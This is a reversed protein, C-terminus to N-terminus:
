GRAIHAKELLKFIYGGTEFGMAADLESKMIGKKGAAKIAAFVLGRQSTERVTSTGGPVYSVCYDAGARSLNKVESVKVPRVKQPVGSPKRAKRVHTPETKAIQAFDKSGCEIAPKLVNEAKMKMDAWRSADGKAAVRAIADLVSQAPSYFEGGTDSFHNEEGALDYCDECLEVGDNDEGTPRTKHGCIRCNFLNTAGKVFGKRQAQQLTTM